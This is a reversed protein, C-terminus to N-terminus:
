LFNIDSDVDPNRIFDLFKNLETLKCCIQCESKYDVQRLAQIVELRRQSKWIQRFSQTKLNGFVYKPDKPHYMCVAVDGNAQVVPNFFHGECTTFPFVNETYLDMFKDDSLNVKPHNQYNLRLYEWVPYNVSINEQCYYRPLIPRFQIYNCIGQLSLLQEIDQIDHQMSINCNVGVKTKGQSHLWRLNDVVQTVRDVGKWAKYKDHDLTDLSIRVWKCYESIYERHTEPFVGNTMLGIDLGLAHAYILLHVFDKHLTPEGGGSFTVAKGGSNAFDRLFEQATFYPISDLSRCNGSICWECKLNCKDTLNFEVFIPWTDGCAMYDAIRDAHYLMKAQSGFPNGGQFQTYKSM